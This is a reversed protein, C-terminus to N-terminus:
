VAKRTDIQGTVAATILASRREKALRIHRRTQKILSDIKTMESDLYAVIRRQEDLRPLPIRFKRVQWESIHPVSIGTFMPELYMLFSRTSFIYRLYDRDIRETPRIRMVRQLLLAPLDSKTISAVRVGSGVFPRDMGLVIDGPKLQYIAPIPNERENWRVVDSWDIQGPKVNIGRLLPTDDIHSTFGESPFAYGALTDTVFGLEVIPWAEPVSPLWSFGSPRKPSSEDGAFVAQGSLSDRRENLLRVFREQAAILADIEATEQDLFAAITHQESLPPLPIPLNDLDEQNVRRDFTTNSRTYLRYQDFYPQSRLVAHLFRPHVQDSLEFVRYDPSIAGRRDSVGVSGGTLWMPNVVLDGPLAVLYNPISADSPAQKTLDRDILHGTITLSLMPEDGNVNRDERRTAITKFRQLKWHQPISGLARGVSRQSGWRGEIERTLASETQVTM